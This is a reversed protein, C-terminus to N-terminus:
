QLLEGKMLNENSKRRDLSKRKEKLDKPIEEPLSLREEVMGNCQLVHHANRQVKNARLSRTLIQNIRVIPTTRHSSPM